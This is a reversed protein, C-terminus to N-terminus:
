AWMSPPKQVADLGNKRWHLGKWHRVAHTNIVARVIQQDIVLCFMWGSHSRPDQCDEAALHLGAFGMPTETRADCLMLQESLLLIIRQEGDNAPTALKM